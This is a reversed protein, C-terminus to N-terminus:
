DNQTDVRGDLNIVVTSSTDQWVHQTLQQTLRYSNSSGQQIKKLPSNVPVVEKLEHVKVAISAACLCPQIAILHEGDRRINVIKMKM